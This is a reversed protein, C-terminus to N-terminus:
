WQALTYTALCVSTANRGMPRSKNSLSESAQSATLFIKSFSRLASSDCFNWSGSTASSVATWSNITFRVESVSGVDTLFSASNVSTSLARLSSTRFLIRSRCDSSGSFTARAISSRALRTSTKTSLTLVASSANDSIEIFSSNATRSRFFSARRTAVSNRLSVKWSCGNDFVPDSM